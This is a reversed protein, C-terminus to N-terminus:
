DTPPLVKAAIFDKDICLSINRTEQCVKRGRLPKPECYYLGLEIRPQFLRINSRIKALLDSIFMPFLIDGIMPGQPVGSTLHGMM